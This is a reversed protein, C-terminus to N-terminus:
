RTMFGEGWGGVFMMMVNDKGVGGGVDEMTM